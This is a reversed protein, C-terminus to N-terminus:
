LSTDAMMAAYRAHAPVIRAQVINTNFQTLTLSRGYASNFSNLAQTATIFGANYMEYLWWLLRAYLVKDGASFSAQVATWFALAFTAATQEVLNLAAPDSAIVNNQEQLVLQANIIPVRGNMVATYDTGVAALYEVIVPAGVQLTHTETVYSRGDKQANGVTYSSSTVPM